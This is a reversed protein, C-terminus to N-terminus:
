PNNKNLKIIEKGTLRILVHQFRIHKNKTASSTQSAKWSSIIQNIQLVINYKSKNFMPIWIIVNTSRKKRWHRKNSNLHLKVLYNQTKYILQGIETNNERFRLKRKNGTASLVIKIKRKIHLFSQGTYNTNLDLIKKREEKM